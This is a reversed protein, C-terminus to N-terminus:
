HKEAIKESFKLGNFKAMQMRDFATYIAKPTHAKVFINLLSFIINLLYYACFFLQYNIAELEKKIASRKKEM